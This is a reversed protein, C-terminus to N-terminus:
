NNRSQIRPNSFATSMKRWDKLAKEGWLTDHHYLALSLDHINSNCGSHHCMVKIALLCGDISTEWWRLSFIEDQVENSQEVKWIFACKPFTATPSTMFPVQVEGLNTGVGKAMQQHWGGIVQNNNNNKFEQWVYQVDVLADTKAPLWFNTKDSPKQNTGSGKGGWSWTFIKFNVLRRYKVDNNWLELKCWSDFYSGSM